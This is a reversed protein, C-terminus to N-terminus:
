TMQGLPPLVDCTLLYASLRYYSIRSLVEECFAEDSVTCGHDRLKAIQQEYSSPPKLM